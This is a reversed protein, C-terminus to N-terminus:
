KSRSLDSGNWRRLFKQRLPEPDKDGHLSFRECAEYIPILDQYMCHQLHDPSFVEKEFHIFDCFVNNWALQHEAQYARLAAGFSASGPNKLRKVKAGFVNSMMQLLSNNQSAGGTAHIVKPKPMWSCHSSMSMLQAEFIARCNEATDRESLGFRYVQARKSDPTIERTFYPLLISAKNGPPTRELTKEFTPWDLNFQKRVEERALSGNTFCVLSMYGGTPSSFLHGEKAKNQLISSNSIGFYTDSTGLSIAAIDPSDLGLGVLSCPNDGSFIVIKTQESFNYKQTWYSSITGLVSSCPKLTPLKSILGDSTFHCIDNHWRSSSLDLLNMGSADAFDIAADQGLLLSTTFSSVLHIKSTKQYDQNNQKFFKRIQPGTFRPTAISGTIESLQPFENELEQCEEGTSQDMWIPAEERSFCPKLQEFLHSSTSLNGLTNEWHDNLYVSGHQQGAGSISTIKKQDFSSNALEAMLQELAEVWMLPPSYVENESHKLIGNETKYHPLASEFPISKEWVCSHENTDILTGTISQTSLDIGFCYSM